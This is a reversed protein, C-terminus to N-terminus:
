WEVVIVALGGNGGPESSLSAGAAGACYGGNRSQGITGSGGNGYGAGGGGGGCNGNNMDTISCTPGGVAGTPSMNGGSGPPYGISTSGGIGGGAGNWKNSGAPSNVGDGGPGIGGSGPNNGGDGGNGGEDLGGSVYGGQGGKGGPATLVTLQLNSPYIYVITDGGNTGAGGSGASAGTGAVGFQHFWVKGDYGARTQYQYWLHGGGAGGGKGQGSSDTAGGGAGAGCFTLRVQQNVAGQWYAGSTYLQFHTFAETQQVFVLSLLVLLLITLLSKM